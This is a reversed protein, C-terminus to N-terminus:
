GLWTCFSDCYFGILLPLTPHPPARSSDRIRYLVPASASAARQGRSLYCDATLVDSYGSVSGLLYRGKVVPPGWWPRPQGHSRLNSNLREGVKSCVRPFLCHGLKVGALVMSAERNGAKEM